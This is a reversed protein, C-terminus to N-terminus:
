PKPRQELANLRGEIGSQVRDMRQSLSDVKLITTALTAQMFDKMMECDRVADTKTYPAATLSKLDGRMEEIQLAMQNQRATISASWWVYAVLYGALTAAMAVLSPVFWRPIAIVGNEHQRISM